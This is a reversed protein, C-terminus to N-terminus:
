FGKKALQGALMKAGPNDGGHKLYFELARGAEWYRKTVFYAQALDYYAPVFNPFNDTVYELELAAKDFQGNVRHSISVLYRAFGNEPDLAVAQSSYDLATHYDGIRIYTYALSMYGLPSGTDLEIEKKYAAIAQKFHRTEVYRDGLSHQYAYNDPNLEVAKELLKTYDSDPSKFSAYRAKFFNREADIFRQLIEHDAATLGTVIENTDKKYRIIEDAIELNPTPYIYKSFEPLPYNDTNAPIGDTYRQLQEPGTAYLALLAYINDLHVEALNDKVKGQNMRQRLTLFDIKLPAPTGVILVHGINLVWLTSNPFVEIFSRVLMKYEYESLWNTALWQCMVGNETLKNKSLEYFEKTYINISLRPHVANTTIIDYKKDSMAMYSRGDEIVVNLGAEDLVNKNEGAFQQASGDIIETNIEVVTVEEMSDQVLSQTTIGMGFGVVLANRPEEVFLYPLYALLKHVRIDGYEAIATVAGDIVLEKIGNFNEPVAVTSGLGEKYFLLRDGPEQTQWYKFYNQQPIFFAIVLLAGTMGALSWTKIKIDSLPNLLVLAIGIVINIAATFITANVVGLFPILLFGAAFSGAISGVTDFFGIVGLKGGLKDMNTTYIKAVIPFTMGMLTAPGIMLVFFTLYEKGMSTLWPETYLPRIAHLYGSVPVFLILIGCAIVGVLIEIWGLLFVLNKTKDVFRSVIFSGFSLGFIFALIVTAYFYASRDFSVGILIRTWIVEYALTTFGEIAFVWLVLRVVFRPYQQQVGSQNKVAEQINTVSVPHHPYRYRVLFVIGACFINFTAAIAINGSLGILRILIFSSLFCGLLAGLNNVGYLLGMNNGLRGLNRVYYKSLVPLTGGMLTTPILLLSFSVVFRLLSSIYLNLGAARTLAIYISECLDLLSPFLLAYIGIGLQILLFVLLHDRVRDILRGFYYSGLALGAMFATLVTSIAFITLGFVQGLMKIWIVQYILACAGSLFFVLLLTTNILRLPHNVPSADRDQTNNNKM